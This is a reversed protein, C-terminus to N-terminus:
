FQTIKVKKLSIGRNGFGNKKLEVIIQNHRSTELSLKYIHAKQLNRSSSNEGWFTKKGWLIAPM